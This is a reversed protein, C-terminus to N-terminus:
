ASLSKGPRTATAWITVISAAPGGPRWTLEGGGSGAWEAVASNRHRDALALSAPKQSSSATQSSRALKARASLSM